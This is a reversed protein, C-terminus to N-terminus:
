LGLGRARGIKVNAGLTAFERQQGPSLSFVAEHIATRPVNLRVVDDTVSEIMRRPLWIQGTPADGDTRVNLHTPTEAEIQGVPLGDASIVMQGPRPMTTDNM